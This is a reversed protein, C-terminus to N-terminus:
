AMSALDVLHLPRIMENAETRCAVGGGNDEHDENRDCETGNDECARGRKVEMRMVSVQVVCLRQDLLDALCMSIPTGTDLSAEVLEVCFKLIHLYPYSLLIPMSVALTNIPNDCGKKKDDLRTQFDSANARRSVDKREM